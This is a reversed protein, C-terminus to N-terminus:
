EAKEQAEPEAKGEAAGNGAHKKIFELALRTSDKPSVTYQADVIEGGKAVVYHSRQNSKPGKVAGLLSLLIQGPDCLLHYPFSHKAKWSAQSKPSDGSLGYVPRVPVTLRCPPLALARPRSVMTAWPDLSQMSIESTALRPRADQPTQRPSICTLCVQSCYTCQGKVKPYVFFVAGKEATLEEVKVERDEENKLILGQPLKEGVELRKSKGNAQKEAAALQKNEEPVTVSSSNAEGHGDGGDQQQQPQPAAEGEGEGNSKAPEHDSTKAKKNSSGSSKPKSTAAPEAAAHGGGRRTSRRLSNASDSGNEAAPAAETDEAAAAPAARKSGKPPM